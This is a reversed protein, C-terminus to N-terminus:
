EEIEGAKELVDDPLSKKTKAGLRKIKEVRSVLSGKGESLKNMATSYHSQASDLRKGLDKLDSILGEFKDYLAGSQRAIELVNKSQYEQRWMSEVMKLAAILNTPSILLIRKEYAFNWLGPDEQIAVHYAPEVPLFMMVFDLTQLQLIDQYNKDALERIHNRVSVLHEKLAQEQEKDTESSIFREFATLSVKSDIVVSRDGPYTVVVDPQLRKGSEVTYSPQIFYERNKVLGSQELISELIVEGWNGQTKTEGKLAKTLNSAEKSVILNLEALRKVEEKLSIRQQTEKDYTEEIKKEFERIKQSLPNLIENLRTTNQDTFKKTKEELIDNALNRFEEKFKEQIKEIEDKQEALKESLHRYDSEKASLQRNLEIIEKEKLDISRRGDELSLSLGNIKEEYLKKFIESRYRSIIYILISGILFGAGLYIFYTTM